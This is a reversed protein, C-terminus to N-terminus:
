QMERLAKVREEIPPHTDFLKSFWSVGGSHGEKFPNAIYLHATGKNAVELPEPDSSIKVLADALEDPNRTLLAGSADALLERRRSVALQILTAILPSLLALIIAIVLFIAAGGGRNDGNDRRGGGWWMMRFFMDALLAVLGVLITVVAMLRIDYDRIHSLEHAAVGELELRNLKQLIGSTFVIASHKPDRGTAFANPATDDIIYIRPVPLGDAICLNEVINYLQPNDQKEIKHAQSIALIISDSFYFSAFNMVLAILLFVTTFGLAEQKTYGLASTLFYAVFIIFATFLAMILLTKTKNAAVQNYATPLTAM